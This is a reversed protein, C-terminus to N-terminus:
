PGFRQRYESSSIFAKVMDANVFNGNFQNLKTLWFDYGTYDSDPADNPNRRLYGFFQMLVFARNFEASNLDPDEAVARLVQARTKANTSLDSVLQDREAASLPNGANTNLTDVFQAATMTNPFATTFRPRQVFAATFAAKNADLQQQWNGQGVIVGQGIEQTDPLFENFRIIPVPFQHTGGFTSIGNASGYSAKHIREVLYGTDQFEISLFFAASVNVRKLEICAQDTGCSTIENTWFNLGSADPERNLFDLYQQRVFPSADDIPNRSTVSQWAPRFDEGSSNTLRIQGTGDANMLYVARAGDRSSVFVIKNQDPSWAPEADPTTTLRTRITGAVNTTYISGQGTYVMKTGDPSWAPDSEAFTDTTLKRQNAGSLDMVYISNSTSRNSVFAIKTGDPSWSPRIEQSSNFTVRRLGSGDANIVYIQSSGGARDSDFAIKSGDPSWTPHDDSRVTNTAQVQGTGDANMVFIGRFGGPLFHIFAIRTGDPSWAPALDTGSTLAVQNNGSADMAYIGRPTRTSAFAIKGNGRPVFTPTPTPTPTPNNSAEGMKLVFGDTAGAFFAQAPNSTTPFFVAAGAASSTTGTVYVNGLGDVAAALARDTGTGGLFTSYSLVSGTSDIRSVFADITSQQGSPSNTKQFADQTTPFGVSNTNGVVYVSGDNLAAIGSAYDDSGGGLYTSYILAGVGDFKTIFADRSGGAFTRQIAGQTTPFDHSDTEGAVYVSGTPDLSIANAIDVDSGGLYTSFILATGTSNFKTVFSNSAGKLTSQYPNKIPFDSSPGDGAVYANGAGDVAIGQASDALSGGLYSSYVLEGAPSIKSVFADGLKTDGPQTQFAGPTVPHGPGTSGTVYANNSSDLAVSTVRSPGGLYTSYVLSSGMANLKTVFAQQSSNFSSQIAGATLPFDNSFTIGGLVANGSSDVAIGLAQDYSHGGLYTAYVIATGAANIKVVFADNQDSKHAPQFAGPTVPFDTSSTMGAIYANGAGDIAIGGPIDGDSGGLFTSYVLIPDIVLPKSHDYSSVFFGITNNKRVVYAGALEQRRGNIEQYVSPRLQRIEGTEVRIVLNGEPDIRLGREGEFVLNIIRPDAGPAVVFDYELQRHNGYFVLDVGQYLDRYRLRSYTSINTRWKGADAGRVYNAKGPLEEDAILSAGTNARAFRIRVPKAGHSAREEPQRLNERDISRIHSNPLSIALGQRAFAMQFGPGRSVFELDKPFQGQNAEFSLPLQGYLRRVSAKASSRSEGASPVTSSVYSTAM